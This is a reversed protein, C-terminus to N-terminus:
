HPSFKIPVVPLVLSTIGQFYDNGGGGGGGKIVSNQILDAVLVSLVAATHDILLSVLSGNKGIEVETFVSSAGSIKFHQM